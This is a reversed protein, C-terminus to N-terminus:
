RASHELRRRRRIIARTARLTDLPAKLPIDILLGRAILRNRLADGTEMSRALWYTAKAISVAASPTKRTQAASSVVDRSRGSSTTKSARARKM